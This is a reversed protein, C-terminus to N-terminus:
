LRLIANFIRTLWLIGFRLLERLLRGTIQDAGPAKKVNLHDIVYAVSHPSFSFTKPPLSDLEPIHIDPFDRPSFTQKLHSAYLEVKESNDRIWTGNVLLPPLPQIPARRFNKTARWLTYNTDASPTLREFFAAFFDNRVTRLEKKVLNNYNRYEQHASKSRVCQWRKRTIRRNRLLAQCHLPQRISFTPHPMPPTSQEAAWQLTHTLDQISKELDTITTITDSHKSRETVLDRFKNWDTHRNVLIPERM